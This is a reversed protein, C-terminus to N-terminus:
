IFSLGTQTLGVLNVNSQNISTTAALALLSAQSYTGSNLLGTYTNLNTNDVTSGMLNNWVAKVFSINDSASVLHTNIALQSVQEMNLGSDFLNIGIGLYEQNKLSTLGFAAGLILAAKGASQTPLFDYAIGKDSFIIREISSLFDKVGTAVNQVESYGIYKAVKFNSSNSNYKVVNVLDDGYIIYSDPTISYNVVKTLDVTISGGHMIQTKGVGTWVSTYNNLAVYNTFNLDVPENNLEVDLLSLVRDENTAPLFLWNTEILELTKLPDGIPLSLNIVTNLNINSNNPTATYITPQLVGNIKIQFSPYTNQVANGNVEVLLNNTTNSTQSIPLSVSSKFNGSDLKIIQTTTDIFQLYQAKSIDHFVENLNGPNFIIQNNVFTTTYDKQNGIFGIMNGSMYAQLYVEAPKLNITEGKIGLHFANDSTNLPDTDYSGFLVGDFWDWNRSTIEAFFARYLNVQENFDTALRSIPPSFVASEDINAGSFSAFTRDTIVINKGYQTHLQELYDLINKAQGNATNNFYPNNSYSNILQELSPDNITTFKPFFGIGLIDFKSILNSTLGSIQNFQNTPTWM